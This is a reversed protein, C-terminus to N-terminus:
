GSLVLATMTKTIGDVARIRALVLESLQEISQAEVQVILDYPGSVTYVAKVGDIRTITKHASKTHDGTVDILVFASVAM